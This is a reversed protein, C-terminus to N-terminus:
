SAASGPSARAPMPSSATRPPASPPGPAAGPQHRRQLARRAHPRLASLRAMPRGPSGARGAVRPCRRWRSAPPRSATPARAVARHAPRPPARRRAAAAPEAGTILDDIDISFAQCPGGADARGRPPARATASRSCILRGPPERRHGADVARWLRARHRHRDRRGRGYAPPRRPHAVADASVRRHGVARAHRGAGGPPAPRRRRRSRRGARRPAGGPPPCPAARPLPPATRSRSTAAFLRARRRFDARRVGAFIAGPRSRM